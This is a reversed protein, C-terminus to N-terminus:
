TLLSCIFVTVVQNKPVVFVSVDWGQIGSKGSVWLCDPRVILKVITQDLQVIGQINFRVDGFSPDNVIGCKSIGKIKPVINIEM